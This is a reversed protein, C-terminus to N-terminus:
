AILRGFRKSKPPEANIYMATHPVSRVSAHWGLM